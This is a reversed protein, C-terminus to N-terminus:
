ALDGAGALQRAEKILAHAGQRALSGAIADGLAVADPEDAVAREEAARLVRAGDVAAVIAVLRLRGATV